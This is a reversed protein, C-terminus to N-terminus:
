YLIANFKIGNALSVNHTIDNWSQMVIMTNYYTCYRKISNKYQQVTYVFNKTEKKKTITVYLKNNTSKAYQLLTGPIKVTNTKM